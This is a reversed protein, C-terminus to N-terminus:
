WALEKVPLVVIVFLVNSFMSEACCKARQIKREFFVWVLEKWVYRLGRSCDYKMMKVKIGRVFREQINGLIYFCIEIGV